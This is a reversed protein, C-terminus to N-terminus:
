NMDVPALNDPQTGMAAAATRALAVPEAANAAPTEAVGRAGAGAGAAMPTGAAETRSIFYNIFKEALPTLQGADVLFKVLKRADAKVQVPAGGVDEAAEAAVEAAPLEMTVRVEGSKTFIARTVELGSLDPLSRLQQAWRESMFPLEAAPSRGMGVGPGVPVAAPGEPRPPSPLTEETQVGTESVHRELGGGPAAAAAAAPIANAAANPARASHTPPSAPAAPDAAGLPQGHDWEAYQMAIAELMEARTAVDVQVRAMRRGAYEFRATDHVNLPAVRLLSALAPPPSPAAKKAPRAPSPLAAPAPAPASPGAEAEAEAGGGHDDRPRKLPSRQPLAAAAPALTAPPPAAAILRAPSRDPNPSGLGALSLRKPTGDLGTTESKKIGCCLRM